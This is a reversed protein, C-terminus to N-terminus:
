RTQISAAQVIRPPLKSTYFFFSVLTQKLVIVMNSKMITRSGRPFDVPPCTLCTFSLSVSHADPDWLCIKVKHWHRMERKVAEIEHGELYHLFLDLYWLTKQPLFAPVSFATQCTQPRILTTSKEELGKGNRTKMM